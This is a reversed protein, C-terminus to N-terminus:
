HRNARFYDVLDIGKQQLKVFQECESLQVEYKMVFRYEKREVTQQYQLRQTYSIEKFEYVHMRETLHNFFLWMENDYSMQLLEMKNASTIM